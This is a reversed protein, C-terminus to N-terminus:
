RKKKSRSASKRSGTSKRRSNISVAATIVVGTLGLGGAILAALVEPSMGEGGDHNATSHAVLPEQIMQEEVFGGALSAAPAFLALLAVTLLVKRLM